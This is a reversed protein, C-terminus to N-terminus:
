WQSDDHISNVETAADPNARDIAVLQALSIWSAASVRLGDVNTVTSAYRDSMLCAFRVVRNLSASVVIANRKTQNHGAAAAANRVLRARESKRGAACNPKVVKFTVVFANMPLLFDRCHFVTFPRRRRQRDPQGVVHAIYRDRFTSQNIIGAHSQLGVASAPEPCNQAVRQGYTM